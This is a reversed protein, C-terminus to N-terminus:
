KLLPYRTFSAAQPIVPAADQDFFQELLSAYVGRYDVNEIQNGNTDLSAIGPWEGVMTGSAQNGILLSTGSAGHDTGLSGNEEVRRGFESWLHVLVRDALGRSELDAQFAAISDAIVQISPNFTGAQAAHTDLSTEYTLAVCRLPLGGAIMAALGALRQPFTSGSASPYTVPSVDLPNTSASGAFPAVAQNLVGVESAAEAVQALAPDSATRLSDGVSVAAGLAQTLIPGSVGNMWLLFAEPTSLAAVPNTASAMTPALEGDLSLGQLPNTPDGAVDVYRGLWGTRVSTDTVGVEWYHRSTFHSMNSSSYGIGPFVTVKGADHLSSFSAASPHWRLRTDETFPTGATPAVALNPRLRQYLPDTTPALLSLSDIGGSVFISVLIPSDASELAAAQAIGDGLLRNTLGVRDAGYVALLGGAAGLLFHRRDIGRGAPTPMEPGWECCDRPNPKRSM